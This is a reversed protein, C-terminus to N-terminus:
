TMSYLYYFKSSKQYIEHKQLSFFRLFRLNSFKWKKYMKWFRRNCTLCLQDSKLSNRPKWNEDGESKLAICAKLIRNWTKSFRIAIIQQWNKVLQLKHYGYTLFSWLTGHAYRAKPVLKKGFIAVALVGVVASRWNRWACVSQMVQLIM